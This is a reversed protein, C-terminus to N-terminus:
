KFLRNKLQKMYEKGCSDEMESLVMHISKYPCVPLSDIYKYRKYEPKYSVDLLHNLGIFLNMLIFDFQEQKIGNLDETKYEPYRIYLTLPGLESDIM